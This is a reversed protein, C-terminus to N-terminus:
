ISVHFHKSIYLFSCFHISMGNDTRHSYWNVNFWAGNQEVIRQFSVALKNYPITCIGREARRLRAWNIARLHLPYYVNQPSVDQRPRMATFGIIGRAETALVMDPLNPNLGRARQVIYAEEYQILQQETLPAIANDPTASLYRCQVDRLVATEVASVSAIRKVPYTMTDWDILPHEEAPYIVRGSPNSRVPIGIVDTCVREAEEKDRIETIVELLCEVDMPTILYMPNPEPNSTDALDRSLDERFQILMSKNLRRCDDETLEAWKSKPLEHVKSVQEAVDLDYKANKPTEERPVDGPRPDRTPITIREKM